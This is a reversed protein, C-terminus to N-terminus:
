RVRKMKCICYNEHSRNTMFHKGTYKKSDEVIENSLMPFPPRSGCIGINTTSNWIPEGQYGRNHIKELLKDIEIKDKKNYQENDILSFAIYFEDKLPFTRGLAEKLIIYDERDFLYIDGLSKPFLIIDFPELDFSSLYEGAKQPVYNKVILPNTRPIYGKNWEVVDVGTYEIPVGINMMTAAEQISWADLMAGCGLSLVRPRKITTDRKFIDSYLQFYEYSYAYMYRLIYCAQKWDNSYDRHYQELMNLADPPPILVKVNNQAYSIAALIAPFSTEFTHTIIKTSNLESLKM